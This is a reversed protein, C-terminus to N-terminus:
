QVISRGVALAAVLDAVPSGRGKVPLIRVPKPNNRLAWAETPLRDAEAVFLQSGRSARAAEELRVGIVAADIDKVPLARIREVLTAEARRQEMLTALLDSAVRHIQEIDSASRLALMSITEAARSVAAQNPPRSDGLALDASVLPLLVSEEARLRPILDGALLDM